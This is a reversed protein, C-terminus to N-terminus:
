FFFFFLLFDYHNAGPLNFNRKLDHGSLLQQRLLEKAFVMLIEPPRIDLKQPKGFHSSESDKWPPHFSKRTCHHM